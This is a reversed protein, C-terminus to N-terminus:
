NKVSGMYFPPEILKFLNHHRSIGSYKEVAQEFGLNEQMSQIELAQPDLANNYLYLAALGSALYSPSNGAELNLLAPSIFRETNGAKRVPDRAVRSVSDQLNKNLFREIVSKSFIDQASSEIGYKMLAIKIEGMVGNVLSFIKRDSLADHIYEYRFHFGFYAILAHVANVTFLKQKKVAELNDVIVVGDPTYPFDIASKEICLQFYKEVKVRLTDSKLERDDPLLSVRDIMCDPTVLLGQLKNQLLESCNGLILERLHMSNHGTANECAVMFLPVSRRKKYRFALAKALMPAAFKLSNMGCATLVLDAHLLQKNVQDQNNGSVASINAVTNEMNEDNGLISIGFENQHNIREIVAQNIDIFVTQYENRFEFALMRGIPGAGIIILKKM